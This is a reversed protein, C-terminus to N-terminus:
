AGFAAGTEIRVTEPGGDDPVTITHALIRVAGDFGPEGQAGAPFRDDDDIVVRVDDGITWAGFPVSRDEPDVDLTWTTITDDREALEREIHEDLTTMISIDKYTRVDEQLPYGQDILETRARTNVLMDTGEGAGIGYLTTISEAGNEDLTYDLLNGNPASRFVIGSLAASRGRRPYYTRFTGVPLDNEYAATIAFDFGDRVAALQEVLDGIVKREYGYAIPLRDRKVGSTNIPVDLNIDGGPRSQAYGILERAILLQDDQNYYRTEAFIRHHFYSWLSACRLQMTRGRNATYRSWVIYGDILTGGREVWIVSRRPRTAALYGTSLRKGTSSRQALDITAFLEGAANLRQSYSVGALPLDGLRDNSRLDHALYRYEAM